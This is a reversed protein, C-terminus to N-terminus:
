ILAVSKRSALFDSETSNIFDSKCLERGELTSVIYGFSEFYDWQEKRSSGYHRLAEDYSEFLISKVRHEALLRRCGKLVRMEFGEVDMKLLDIRDITHTGCFEDLTVGHAARDSVVSTAIRTQGPAKANFDVALQDTSDSVPINLTVISHLLNPNNSINRSLRAFNETSAEFAYVTRAGCLSFYLSYLGINAGVDVCVSGPHDIADRIVRIERIPIRYSQWFVYESLNQWQNLVLSTGDDGFIELKPQPRGLVRYLSWRLLASRYTPDRVM